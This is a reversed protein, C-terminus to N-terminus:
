CNSNLLWTALERQQPTQQSFSNLFFEAPTQSLWLRCQEMRYASPSSDWQAQLDVQEQTLSEMTPNVSELETEDSFVLAIMFILLLASAGLTLFLALRKPREFMSQKAPRIPPTTVYTTPTRQPGLDSQHERADRAQTLKITPPGIEGQRLSRAQEPTDGAKGTWHTGDWYRVTTPDLPDDYYGSAPNLTEPSPSRETTQSIGDSTDTLIEGCYSCFRAGSQVSSSGCKRCSM